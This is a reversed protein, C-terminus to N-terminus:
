RSHSIWKQLEEKSQKKIEENPLKSSPHVQVVVAQQHLM